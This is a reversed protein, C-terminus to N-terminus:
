CLPVHQVTAKSPAPCEYGPDRGALRCCTMASLYTKSIGINAAAASRQDLFGLAHTSANHGRQTVGWSLKVGRM